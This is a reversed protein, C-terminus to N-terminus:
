QPQNSNGERARNLAEQEKAKWLAYFLGLGGTLAAPGWVPHIPLPKGAARQSIYDLGKGIGAGAATGLGFGLLGKGVTGAMQKTKSKLKPEEVPSELGALKMFSGSHTPLYDFVTPLM